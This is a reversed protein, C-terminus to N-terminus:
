AAYWAMYPFPAPEKAFVRDAAVPVGRARDIVAYFNDADIGQADCLRKDRKMAATQLFGLFKVERPSLDPHWVDFILM